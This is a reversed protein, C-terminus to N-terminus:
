GGTRRHHQFTRPKGDLAFRSFQACRKPIESLDPCRAQCPLGAIPLSDLLRRLARARSGIENDGAPKLRRVDRLAATPGLLSDAIRMRMTPPMPKIPDAIWALNEVSACSHTDTDRAGLPSRPVRWGGRPGRHRAFSPRRTPTRLSGATCWASSQPCWTKWPEIAMPPMGIVM